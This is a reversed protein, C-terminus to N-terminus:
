TKEATKTRPAEGESNECLVFKCQVITITSVTENYSSRALGYRDRAGRYIKAEDVADDVAGSLEPQDHCDCPSLGKM